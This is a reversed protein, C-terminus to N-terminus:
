KHMLKELMRKGNENDPNLEISKEYYRIAREKDGGEMYAEGLSDYVNWSDPYLEVNLKFAAIAEHLKDARLLRYGLRNVANEAFLPANDNGEEAKARYFALGAEAGEHYLTRAFTQIPADYAEYQLWDFAPHKGGITQKILENRIALGNESNTFYVVAIKPKYFAVTYCRFIGQDGWHWFSTGEQTRQLGWGLGWALNESLEAPATQTCNTCNPDLHIQPSLMETVTERSLETNNFIAILFKTYDEATTYLSYAANAETMPDREVVNGFMGHGVAHNDAFDARWEYSSHQMNLPEFVLRRALENLKEGTISEVVRQLYVYGEGSYSFRAGPPFHIELADDRPRWNPFGSTHSLVMRATITDDREDNEVYDTEWYRVLPTDLDFQGTEVLQLVMYAFVTKSLSAAQFVTSDNVADPTDARKSGFSGSWFLDGDHILAISMGPVHAQQMLEPIRKQLRSVHTEDVIRKAPSGDMGNQAPLSATFFLILSVTFVMHLPMSLHSSM